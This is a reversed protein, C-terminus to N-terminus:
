CIKEANIADIGAYKELEDYDIEYLSANYKKLGEEIYMNRIYDQNRQKVFAKMNENQLRAIKKIEEDLNRSKSKKEACM